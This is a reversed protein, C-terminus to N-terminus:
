SISRGPRPTRSGSTEQCQLGEPRVSGVFALLGVAVRLVMSLELTGLHFPGSVTSAWLRRASLGDYGDVPDALGAGQMFGIIANDIIKTPSTAMIGGRAQIREIDPRCRRGIDCFIPFWETFGIREGNRVAKQGTFFRFTYQRDIPPVVEPLVHHLAKSGAVIKTGSTSVKLSAIVSWVDAAVSAEDTPPLQTINLPWLRDIAPETARFSAVMEEFGGVKAAQRGMRHMGWAPLVAYVYEFFLLDNLLGDLTAHQRRREIARQHFYLSPGPFANSQEFRDVCDGFGSVLDEVNDNMRAARAQRPRRAAM